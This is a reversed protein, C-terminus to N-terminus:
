APEGTSARYQSGATVIRDAANGNQQNNYSCANKEYRGGAGNNEVQM